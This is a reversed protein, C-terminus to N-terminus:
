GITANCHFIRKQVQRHFRKKLRSRSIGNGSKLSLVSTMREVTEEGGLLGVAENIEEVRYVRGRPSWHVLARLREKRLELEKM